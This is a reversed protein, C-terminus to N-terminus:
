HLFTEWPVSKQFFSSVECGMISVDAILDVVTPAVKLM